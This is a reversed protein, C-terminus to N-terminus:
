EYGNALMWKNLNMDNDSIVNWEGLRTLIDGLYYGDKFLILLNNETLINFIHEAEAVSVNRLASIMYIIYSKDLTDTMSSVWEGGRKTAVDSFIRFLDNEYQYAFMRLQVNKKKINELNLKKREEDKAYQQEASKLAEPNHKFIYKAKADFSYFPKDIHFAQVNIYKGLERYHHDRKDMSIIFRLIGYAVALGVVAVGIDSFFEQM